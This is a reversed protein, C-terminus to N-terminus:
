HLELKDPTFTLRTESEIFMNQLFFVRQYVTSRSDLPMMPLRHVNIFRIFIHQIAFLHLTRERKLFFVNLEISLLLCIRQFNKNKLIFLISHPSQLSSWYYILPKSCFCLSRLDPKSCGHLPQVHCQTQGEISPLETSTPPVM